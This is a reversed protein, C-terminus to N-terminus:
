NKFFIVSGSNSYIKNMQNLYLRIESTNWWKYGTTMINLRYNMWRLYVYSNKSIESIPTAYKYEKKEKTNTIIWSLPNRMMGYSTLVTYRCYDGSYVRASKDKHTSLWKVSYVDLEHVYVSFMKVKNLVSGSSLVRAKSISIDQSYDGVVEAIFNSNFLFFILFFVAIIKFEKNKILFKPKLLRYTWKFIMLFGIICFPALLMLSLHYFRTFGITIYGTFSPLIISVLNGLFFTLSFALYESTFKEKFNINLHGLLLTKFYPRLKDIITVSLGIIILFTTIFHLTREMKYSFPLDVSAWYLPSNRIPQFLEYISNIIHSGLRLATSFVSGLSTYLYWNVTLAIVLLIYVPTILRNSYGNSQFISAFIYVFPLFLLFIYSTGYHSTILSFSFIIFLITKKFTRNRSTILLLILALFVEAIQQRALQTMETFFVRFSMFFYSSYFAIRDDTQKWIIYYLCLPVLSYLIPYFIKFVLTLGVDCLISLSPALMVISLMANHNNPPFSPNWFSNILVINANYYEFHIDAGWLFKTSLTRHYLLSIAIIFITLPYLKRPFRNFSALIPVFSITLLLYLSLVNNNYYNILYAGFISLFFIGLMFLIYSSFLYGIHISFSVKNNTYFYCILWLISLVINYIIFLNIESFPNIIGVIPLIINVLLGIFMIFFLSLGVIYLFNEANANYDIGLIRSLLSGPVFILYLFAVLQRLIPIEIGIKDLLFVGIFALQLALILTLINVKITKDYM